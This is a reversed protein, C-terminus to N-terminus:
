GFFLTFYFLAASIVATVCDIRGVFQAVAAAAIEYDQSGTQWNAQRSHKNELRVCLFHPEHPATMASIANQL